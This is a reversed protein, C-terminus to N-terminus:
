AAGGRRARQIEYWLANYADRADETNMVEREFFTIVETSPMEKVLLRITYGGVYKVMYVRDRQRQNEVHSLFAIRGLMNDAEDTPFAQGLAVTLVRMAEEVTEINIRTDRRVIDVPKDWVGDSKRRKIWLWKGGYYEFEFYPAAMYTNAASTLAMLDWLGKATENEM